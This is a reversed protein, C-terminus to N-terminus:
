TVHIAVANHVAGARAGRRSVVHTEKDGMPEILPPDIIDDDSVARATRRHAVEVKVAPSVEGVPVHESSSMPRACPKIQVVSQSAYGCGLRRRDGQQAPGQKRRPSQSTTPTM